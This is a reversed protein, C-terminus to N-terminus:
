NDLYSPLVEEKKWLSGNMENNNSEKKFLQMARMM